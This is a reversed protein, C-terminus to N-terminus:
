ESPIALLIEVRVPKQLQMAPRFEWKELISLVYATQQPDNVGLVRLNEFRGEANIFGQVTMYTGPRRRLLPRMTVRPYPASLPPPAAALTVVGGSARPAPTSGAPICYQLIWDKPGGVNLYVSYIPRGSLAGASEPLGDLGGQVVVDFVGDVPHTMRTAAVAPDLAGGAGASSGGAGSGAAGGGNGSGSGSASGSGTVEGEAGRGAGTEGPGEGAGGGNKANGAGQGSGRGSGGAGQEPMRGVMNGPPITLFERLPLPKSTISLVAVPDGPQPDDAGGSSSAASQAAARIPLAPPPALLRASAALATSAPTKPAAAAGATELRPPADLVRPAQPARVHGPDVFPKVARPRPRETNWFFIEPLRVNLPLADTQSRPQLITQDTDAPRAVAPLEFPRRGGARPRAEVARPRAGEGAKAAAAKPAPAPKPRGPSGTSALYLREPVRLRLTQVMRSREWLNRPARPRGAPLHIMAAIVVIHLLVSCAFGPWRRRPQPVPSLSIPVPIEEFEDLEVPKDLSLELSIVKFPAAMM